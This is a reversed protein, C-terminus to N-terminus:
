KASPSLKLHNLVLRLDSSNVSKSVSSVLLWTQDTVLSGLLKGNATGIAAQGLSTDFSSSNSLGQTYFKNFDFGPPRQQDTFAIKAGSYNVASYLVVGGSTTFSTNDLHYGAPLQAPYLLPFNVSARVNAPIPSSLRASKYWYGAGAACAILAFLIIIIWVRRRSKKRRPHPTAAQHAPAPRTDAAATRHHPQVPVPSPAPRLSPSHQPRPPRIVENTYDRRYRNRLDDDM